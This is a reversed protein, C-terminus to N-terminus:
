QEERLRLKLLSLSLSHKQASEKKKKMFNFSLIIYVHILFYPILTEIHLHNPYFFIITLQVFNNGVHKKDFKLKKM